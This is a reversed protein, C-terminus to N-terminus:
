FKLPSLNLEAEALPAPLLGMRVPVDYLRGRGFRPWFHRLGPVVVKVTCLDVDPRTQDLVLTELGARAARDVCELVDDRLDAHSVVPFDARVRAPAEEHPLLFSTSTLERPEWPVPADPAPDFLQNLETLARMVGLRAELHCGFGM